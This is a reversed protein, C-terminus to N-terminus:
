SFTNGSNDKGEQIVELTGDDDEDHDEHILQTSEDGYEEDVIGAAGSPAVAHQSEERVKQRSKLRASRLNERADEREPKLSSLQFCCIFFSGTINIFYFYKDM